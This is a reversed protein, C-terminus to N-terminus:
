FRWLKNCAICRDQLGAHHQRHIARDTGACKTGLDTVTEDDRIIPILRQAIM